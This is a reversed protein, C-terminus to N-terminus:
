LNSRLRAFKQSISETVYDFSESTLEALKDKLGDRKKKLEAYDEDAGTVLREQKTIEKNIKDMAKEGDEGGTGKKEQEKKKDGLKVLAEKAKKKTEQAADMNSQFDKIGRELKAAAEGENDDKSDSSNEEYDALAQGQEAAKQSLATQKIKLQKAEEGDAAKLVIKNAALNSKTKALAAVKKLGDTTALDNMRQTIADAQDKLAANKAKNAQALVEKQKATMSVKGKAKKKAFDVDNLAQAVKAKQYAKANNKIKKWKIPNKVADILTENIFESYTKLKSM